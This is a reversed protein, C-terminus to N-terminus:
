EYKMTSSPSIGAIIRTPALLILTSFLLAGLNLASLAIWDFEIPVSSLYYASPDLPIWHYEWQLYALGLGIVNGIILGKLIIREALYIFIDRIQGNTAGLSKLIGIFRVRQLILIFLCSILTFGSVISMLCLIVIVNTDLLDLWNFYVAATDLVNDAQLRPPNSDPSMEDIYKQYLGRNIKDTVDAIRDAPIGSVEIRDGEAHSKGSIGQIANLSIFCVTRDHEDFNTDYIGKVIFRRAKLNDDVFFYADIKDGLTISLANATKASIVLSKNDTRLGEVGGSVMSESIFRWDHDKDYGRFELGIFDDATKLVGSRAMSLSVAYDGAMSKVFAADGETVTPSLYRGYEDYTDLGKVTISADIGMVKARIQSKFGMVVTISLIMVAMSLAIGGIAISNNPSISLGDQPKLKLRRGIFISLKM